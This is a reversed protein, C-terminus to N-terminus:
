RAVESESVHKVGAQKLIETGTQLWREVDKPKFNEHELAFCTLGNRGVQVYDTFDPHTIKYGFKEPNLWIKTGPYPMLPYIAFEDLGLQAAKNFSTNISEDSDFPLGVMFSARTVLGHAKATRVNEEKGIQSKRGLVGLNENDLSELGISVHVCGAEKLLRSTKETLDDVRAFIRFKIKLDRIKTLLEELNPNGTFHDDNFRFYNYTGSLNNIEEIINDTSRYRVNRNGGGMVVSNCHICHHECGRSSILSVVPKGMLTRSYSTLDVLNRAPFAYSDIDNRGYGKLIGTPKSGKAFSDICSHVLDEGEGIGVVDAGSDQFTFEPAGTPNPGGILVYAPPNKRRIEGIVRKANYYTTCLSRVCYVDSEPISTIKSPIEADSKCGTMDYVLVNDYGKKQLNAAIYLIGLPPELRDDNVCTAPPEILTIKPNRNM